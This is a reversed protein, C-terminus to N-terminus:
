NPNKNGKMQLSLMKRYCQRSCYVRHIDYKWRLFQKKCVPCEILIKSSNVRKKGTSWIAFCERCCFKVKDKLSERVIIETGCNLCKKIVRLQKNWTPKGKLSEWYCKQSCFKHKNDITKHCTKCKM